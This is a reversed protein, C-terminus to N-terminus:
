FKIDDQKASEGTTQLYRRIQEPTGIYRANNPGTHEVLDGSLLLADIVGEAVRRSMDTRSLRRVWEGHREARDHFVFWKIAADVSVDDRATIKKAPRLSTALEPSVDDREVFIGDQLEITRPGVSLGCRAAHELVVCGETSSPAMSLLADVHRALVGSGSGRDILQKDGAYGKTSHHVFALAAGTAQRVRKFVSLVAKADEVNSEDGTIMCYLPDGVILKADTERAAQIMNDELEPLTFDQQVNWTAFNDVTSPDIGLEKAQFNLREQFFFSPIEFQLLVSRVPTTKQGFLPLGQSICYLMQMVAMSKGLKSQGMLMLELSEPLIGEIIWTPKPLPILILDCVQVPGHLSPDFVHPHAREVQELIADPGHAPDNFMDLYDPWGKGLPTHLYVDLGDKYFRDAAAEAARQGTGSKDRDAFVHVTTVGGPLRLERMNNANIAAVTPMGLAEQVALGTEIGEAVAATTGLAQLVVFGGKIPGLAKKPKPVDAKAPTDPDLYIRHIAVQAGTADTVPAIIAPLKRAAERHYCAPHVRFGPPVDGSLGRAKFYEAAQATDETAADWTTQWAAVAPAVTDSESVTPPDTQRQDLGAMDACARFADAPTGGMLAQWLDGVDGQKVGCAFCKWKRGGETISFQADGRHDAIPCRSVGDQQPIDTWGLAALVDHVTLRKKITAWDDPM